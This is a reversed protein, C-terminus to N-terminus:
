EEIAYLPLTAVAGATMTYEAPVYITTAEDALAMNVTGYNLGTSLVMAVAKSATKKTAFKKLDM